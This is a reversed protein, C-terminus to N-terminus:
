SRDTQPRGLAALLVGVTLRGSGDQRPRARIRRALRWGLLVGVILLYVLPERFDAKVQWWFHWIGLLVIVYVLRHLRTWRRGLRRMMRNTSTVALPVLLLLASFGITIFPRKAIDEAIGALYFGQDLLLWTLFHMCVYFFAFLGLMRRFAMLWPLGLWSRLPTVALTLVLMRLGWNGFTDLVMEVPNAGLDSSGLGFGRWLLSALPLLCILFGLPKYLRNLQRNSPM